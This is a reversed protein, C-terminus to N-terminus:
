RTVDIQLPKREVLLSTHNFKQGQIVVIIHFQHLCVVRFSHSLVVSLPKNQTVNLKKKRKQKKKEETYVNCLHIM